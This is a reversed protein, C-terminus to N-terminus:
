DRQFILLLYFKFKLILHYFILSCNKESGNPIIAKFFQAEISNFRYTFLM